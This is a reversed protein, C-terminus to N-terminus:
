RAVAVLAVEAGHVLGAVLVIAGSGIIIGLL